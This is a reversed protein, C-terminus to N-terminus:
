GARPPDVRDLRAEMVSKRADSKANRRALVGGGVGLAGAAGLLIEELSLRGDGDADMAELKAQVTGLSDKVAGAINKADDAIGGVKTALADVKSISSPIACGPVAILIGLIGLIQFTKM